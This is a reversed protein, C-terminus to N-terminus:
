RIFERAGAYERTNPVAEDIVFALIGGQWEAPMSADRSAKLVQVLAGIFLAGGKTTRGAPIRTVKGPAIASVAADVKARWEGMREKARDAKRDEGAAKLTAAKLAFEEVKAKARDRETEERLHHPM